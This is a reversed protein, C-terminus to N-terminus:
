SRVGALKEVGRLLWGGVVPEVAPDLHVDPYAAFLEELAIRAIQPGLASGACGHRGMGFALHGQGPREVDYVEPDVFHTEDRNASGYGLWMNDGAMIQQGAVEVDNAAVRISGGFVPAIWRVEGEPMGEHLWNSIVGADPERTVREAIGTVVERIEATAADAAGFKAEDMEINALGSALGHFWRRLTQTDIEQFGLTDGVCRVSVPEFYDAM